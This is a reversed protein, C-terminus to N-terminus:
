SKNITMAYSIKIPFQRRKLTFPWKSEHINIDIKPIYVKETINNSNIIQVEIIRNTLQTIILRTGNCLGLSQSLNRLLMVPIGVKLNLEYPPVSNFNLSHLLEQPYLM